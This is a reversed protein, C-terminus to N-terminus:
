FLYLTGAERVQPPTKFTVGVLLPSSYSIHIDETLSNRNFFRTMNVFIKKKKCTKAAAAYNSQMWQAEIYVIENTSPFQLSLHVSNSKVMILTFTSVRKKSLFSFM